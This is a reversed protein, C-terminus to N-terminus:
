GEKEYERNCNKTHMDLLMILIFTYSVLYMEFFYKFYSVPMTLTTISIHAFVGLFMLCTKNKKRFAYLLEGVLLLVPFYLNYADEQRGAAMFARIRSKIFVIPEKIIISKIANNLETRTVKYDSRHIYYNNENWDPVDFYNNDFGSIGMDTNWKDIKEIDFAENIVDLEESIKDRDLSNEGLLHVLLADTAIARESGIGNNIVPINFLVEVVIFFSIMLCTRKKNEKEGYALLLLCPGILLLYIGERRLVSLLVILLVIGVVKLPSFPLNRKEIIDFYLIVFIFLYIFGYWQMRHVEVGLTYFPPLLCLLYLAFVSKNKYHSHVRYVIYGMILSEMIIKVITPALANSIIMFSILYFESLYVFFYPYLNLASNYVLSEDGWYYNNPYANTIKVMFYSIFVAFFPLSYLLIKRESSDKLVAIYIFQVFLFILVVAILVAMILWFIQQGKSIADRYIEDSGYRSKLFILGHLVSVISWISAMIINAKQKFLDKM